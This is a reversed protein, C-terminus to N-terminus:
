FLVRKLKFAIEDPAMADLGAPDVLSEVVAVLRADGNTVRFTTGPSFEDPHSQIFSKSFAKGQAIAQAPEPGVRIEPMFDLAEEAKMLKADLIGDTQAQAVEELTLASELDFHGVRERVLSSM